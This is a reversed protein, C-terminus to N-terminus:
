LQAGRMSTTWGKSTYSARLWNPVYSIPLLNEPQEDDLASADQVLEPGALDSPEACSTMVMAAVFTVSLASLFPPPPNM